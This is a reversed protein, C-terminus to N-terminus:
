KQRSLVQRSVTQWCAMNPTTWRWRAPSARLLLSVARMRQAGSKSVQSFVSGINVIRGFGRAAMGPVLARSLVVPARLNIAMVRDFDDMDIEGVLAHINIGANNVLIDFGEGSLNQAVREIAGADSLDVVQIDVHGHFHPDNALGELKKRNSGLATIKAGCSVLAAGIARGIGSGAGTVVAKRGELDIKV